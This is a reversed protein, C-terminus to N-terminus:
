KDGAIDSCAMQVVEHFLHFHRWAVQKLYLSLCVSVSTWSNIFLDKSLVTVEFLSVFHEFSECEIFFCFVVFLPLFDDTNVIILTSM